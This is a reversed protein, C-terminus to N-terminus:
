LWLKTNSLDIGGNGGRLFLGSEDEMMEDFMSDNEESDMHLQQPEARGSLEWLQQMDDEDLRFRFVERLEQGRFKRRLGDDPHVLQCTVITSAVHQLQLSWRLVVSAISAGHKLAIMELTALLKSQYAEWLWYDDDAGNSTYGQRDAWVRLDTNWRRREALRFAWPRPMDERETYRNTLLGGALPSSLFLPAGIDECLQQQELSYASPDLLNVDLQNSDLAFGYDRAARIVHSPVNRGGVSRVLGERKLEELIELIDFVHPSSSDKNHQIQLCDISDGGVRLLSELVTKRVSSATVGTTRKESPLAIPITLHCQNMVSPPTDQRLRGLIHDEAWHQHEQSSAKLQFTTLGADLLDQMKEVAPLTSSDGGKLIVRLAPVDIAVALRCTEKPEYIPDGHLLYAGLPLHGEKDLTPVCPLQNDDEDNRVVTHWFNSSLTSGAQEETAPKETSASSRHAFARYNCFAESRSSAVFAGEVVRHNSNLLLLLCLLWSSSVETFTRRWMGIENRHPFQM